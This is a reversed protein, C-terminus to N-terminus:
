GCGTRTAVCRDCVAGAPPNPADELDEVVQIEDIPLQLPTLGVRARVATYLIRESRLDEEVRIELLIRVVRHQGCRPVQRDGRGHDRVEM